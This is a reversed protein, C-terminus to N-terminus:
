DLPESLLNHRQAAKNNFMRVEASLCGGTCSLSCRLSPVCKERDKRGEWGGEQMKVRCIPGAPLATSSIANKSLYNPYINIYMITIVFVNEITPVANLFEYLTETELLASHFSITPNLLKAPIYLIHSAFCM